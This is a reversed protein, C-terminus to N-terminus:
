MPNKVSMWEIDEAPCTLHNFPISSRATSHIELAAVDIDQVRPTRSNQRGPPTNSRRMRSRMAEGRCTRSAINYDLFEQHIAPPFPNGICANPFSLLTTIGRESPITAPIVSVYHRKRRLASTALIM